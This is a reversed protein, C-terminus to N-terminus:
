RSVQSVLPPIAPEATQIRTILASWGDAARDGSYEATQLRRATEGMSACEAPNSRMWEILAALEDAAGIAVSRGCDHLSLVRPVEGNRDGIFLTPRGAALIGYFKSPIICHELEPLLSVVHVDAAGISEALDTVPQLPKFIVNELGLRGVEETVRAHQHGGGIMLFKIDARHRLRSAAEILTTFEHARGFNGSYGVVFADELGWEVRLRNDRASIPFIENSDAWHHMVLLRDRSLGQGNLYDAMTSTPCIIMGSSRLSWNRAAAIWQGLKPWRRLFGLEIATEPFLDMIWNVMTAGKLRGAVSTTVSLLPPDTCVVVQDSATANRLLWLFALGHFLAYDLCRRFLNRRGAGASVLRKVTVGDIIEDAPLMEGPRNHIERSAVATVQFGRRALSFAISSIVRSTASQDPFFYRNVLIIKM